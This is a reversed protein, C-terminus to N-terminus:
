FIPLLMTLHLLNERPYPITLILSVAQQANVMKSVYTEKLAVHIFLFLQGKGSVENHHLDIGNLHVPFM